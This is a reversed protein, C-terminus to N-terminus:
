LERNDETKMKVIKEMFLNLFTDVCNNWGDKAVAIDESYVGNM